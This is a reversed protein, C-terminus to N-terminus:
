SATAPGFGLGHGNGGKAKLQRDIKQIAFGRKDGCPFVSRIRPQREDRCQMFGYRAKPEGPRRVLVRLNWSNMLAAM